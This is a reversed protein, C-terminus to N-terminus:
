AIDAIYLSHTANRKMFQYAMYGVVAFMVLMILDEEM